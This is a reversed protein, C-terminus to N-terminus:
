QNRASCKGRVCVGTPLKQQTPTTKAQDEPLMCQENDRLWFEEDRECIFTCQRYIHAKSKEYVAKCDPNKDQPPTPMTSTVKQPPVERNKPVCEGKKCIGKRRTRRGKRESDPSPGKPLICKEGTKLYVMEDEECPFACKHYTYNMRGKKWARCDPSRRPPRPGGTNPPLVADKSVCQGEKCIGTGFAASTAQLSTPIAVPSQGQLVCKESNNLYSAEDRECVFSCNQYIYESSGDDKHNCDPNNDLPPRLIPKQPTKSNQPVCKGNDCVGVGLPSSIETGEKKTFGSAPLLVCTQKNSLVVSEDGECTFMCTHYTNDTRNTRWATCDPNTERPPGPQKTTPTKSDLPVCNGDVCQGMDVTGLDGGKLPLKSPSGPASPRVCSQKNKLVVKEDGECTFVCTHYLNDTRNTRWATCDPNTERPPGPQKTTIMPTKSNPAVCKGDVCHGIDATGLEGGKISHKSPSGSVPKLVCSQKDNLPVKEDRECLFTCSHYLYDTQNKEWAYCDPNKDKPPQPKGTTVPSKNDLAVCRGDKCYGMEVTGLQGVEAQNKTDQKSTSHLVCSQKNSLPVEEDGECAFTCSHYLYNTLNKKWANCDPNTDRPPGPKGTTGPTQTPTCKGGICVGLEAQEQGGGQVQAKTPAQSSPNLVCFQRDDLPVEEDGECIFTCNNYPYDVQKKKWAACDPNTDHPPKGNSPPGESGPPVCKGELCFGMEVAVQGGIKVQNKTGTQPLQKLVCSEKDVLAVEEDGECAFTCNHYLYSTNKNKSAACDPNTEQPPTPITPKQPPALTDNLVCKGEVCVGTVFATVSGKVPSTGRSPKQGPLICRERSRLTFLEDEECIFSCKEYVYDTTNRHGCDPNTDTPPRPKRTRRPPKPKKPPTGSGPLVCKGDICTGEDGTITKVGNRAPMEKIPDEAFCTEHNGLVFEEDGECIFTCNRFLHRPINNRMAVCDPNNDIPPKPAKSPAAPQKPTAPIAPPSSPVPPAPPSPPPAPPTPSVPPLKNKPPVKQQGPVQPVQTVQPGPPPTLVPPPVPGPVKLQASALIALSAYIVIDVFMTGTNGLGLRQSFVRRCIDVPERTKNCVRAYLRIFVNVCSAPPSSPVSPAPPPPPPAPPAPFVPPLENKPPVKRQPPVQPVQTVQPGPPPTLVPPPVPGPVKLQASALIALSAYIIIDVFM